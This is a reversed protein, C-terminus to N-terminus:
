KVGTLHVTIEDVFSKWISPDSLNGAPKRVTSVKSAVEQIISIKFATVDRVTKVKDALGVFGPIDRSVLYNSAESFLSSVFSDIRNEGAGFSIVAARNAIDGVLSAQGSLVMLRRIKQGVEIPSNANKVIDVCQAIIPQGLDSVLGGDQENAAARWIEQVTRQLSIGFHMYATEVASWNATKPSRQNVSTGV